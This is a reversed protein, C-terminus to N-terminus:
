VEKEVERKLAAHRLLRSKAAKFMALDKRCVFLLCEADVSDRKGKHEAIRGADVLVKDIFGQLLGCM